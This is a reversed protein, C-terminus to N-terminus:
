IHILAIFGKFINKKCYVFMICVYYMCQVYMICVNYMCAHMSAHMCAHMWGYMCVYMYIYIYISLLWKSLVTAGGFRGFWFAMKVAVEGWPM